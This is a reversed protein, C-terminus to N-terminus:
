INSRAWPTTQNLRDNLGKVTREDLLQDLNEDEESTKLAM